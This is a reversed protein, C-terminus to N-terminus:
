LYTWIYTKADYDREDPPVAKLLSRIIESQALEKSNKWDLKTTRGDSSLVLDLMELPTNPNLHEYYVYM